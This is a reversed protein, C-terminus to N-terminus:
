SADCVDTIRSSDTSREGENQLSEDGHAHVFAENALQDKIDQTADPYSLTVLREIDNALGQLSEGSRRRRTRLEVKFRDRQEHSGFRTKLKDVIEDFTDHKLQFLLSGADGVLNTKLHAVRAQESWGNFSSAANFRELYAELSSKGDYPGINIDRGRNEMRHVPRSSSRRRHFRELEDDSSSSGYVDNFTVRRNDHHISSGRRQRRLEDKSKHQQCTQHEGDNRSSGRRCQKRSRQYQDNDSSEPAPADDRRQQHRHRQSDIGGYMRHREEEDDGSQIDATRKKTPSRKRSPRAEDNATTGTVLDTLRTLHQQQQQMMVLLGQFKDSHHDQLSTDAHTPRMGLMSDQQRNPMAFDIDEDVTVRRRNSLRHRELRQQEQKEQISSPSRQRQIQGDDISQRQNSLSRDAQQWQVIGAVQQSRAVASKIRASSQLRNDWQHTSVETPGLHLTQLGAVQDNDEQGNCEFDLRTASDQYEQSRTTVGMCRREMPLTEELDEPEVNSSKYNTVLTESHNNHRRSNRDQPHLAALRVYDTSSGSDDQSKHQSAATSDVNVYDCATGTSRIYQENPRQDFYSAPYLMLDSGAENRQSRNGTSLLRRVNDNDAVKIPQRQRDPVDYPHGQRRLQGQDFISTPRSGYVHQLMAQCDLPQHQAENNNLGPRILQHIVKFRSDTCVPLTMLRVSTRFDNSISKNCHQDVIM